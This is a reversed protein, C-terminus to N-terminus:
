PSTGVRLQGPNARYFLFCGGCGSCSPSSSVAISHPTHLSRLSVNFTADGGTEDRFEGQSHSAYVTKEQFLHHPHPIRTLPDARTCTSTHPYPYPLAAKTPVTLLWATQELNFVLTGEPADPSGYRCLVGSVRM